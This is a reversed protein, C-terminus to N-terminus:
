FIVLNLPVLVSILGSLRTIYKHTNKGKGVKKEGNIGSKEIRIITRRYLGSELFPSIYHIETM